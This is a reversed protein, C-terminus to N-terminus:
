AAPPLPDIDRTCLAWSVARRIADHLPVNSDVNRLARARAQCLKTHSVRSLLQRDISSVVVRETTQEPRLVVVNERASLDGICLTTM